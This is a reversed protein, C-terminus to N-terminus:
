WEGRRLLQRQRIEGSGGWGRYRLRRWRHHLYRRSESVRLPYDLRRLHLVATGHHHLEDDIRTSIQKHTNSDGLDKCFFIQEGKGCDSRHAQAPKKAFFAFPTSFDIDKHIRPTSRHRASPSINPMRVALKTHRVWVIGLGTILVLTSSGGKGTSKSGLFFTSFVFHRLLLRHFLRDKHIEPKLLQSPTATCSTSVPHGIM